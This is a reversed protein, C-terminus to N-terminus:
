RTRAVRGANISRDLEARSSLLRQIVNVFTTLDTRKWERVSELPSDLRRRYQQRVAKRCPCVTLMTPDVFPGSLECAQDELAFAAGLVKDLGALSFRLFDELIM